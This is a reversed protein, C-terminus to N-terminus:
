ENYPDAWVPKKLVSEATYEVPKYDDYKVDWSVKADEFTSKKIGEPAKPYSPGRAKTHYKESCKKSPSGGTDADCVAELSNFIM